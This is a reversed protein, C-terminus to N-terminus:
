AKITINEDINKKAFGREKCVQHQVPIHNFFSKQLRIAACLKEASGRPQWDSFCIDLFPFKGLARLYLFNSFISGVKRIVKEEKREM